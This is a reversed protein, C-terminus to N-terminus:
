SGERRYFSYYYKKFNFNVCLFYYNFFFIMSRANTCHLIHLFLFLEKILFLLDSIIIECILFKFYLKTM